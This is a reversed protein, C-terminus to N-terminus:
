VSHGSLRRQQWGGDPLSLAAALLTRVFVFLSPIRFVAVFSRALACVVQQLLFAATVCYGRFDVAGDASILDFWRRVQLCPPLPLDLLDGRM